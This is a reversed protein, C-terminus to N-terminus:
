IKFDRSYPLSNHHMIKFFLELNSQFKERGCSDKNQGKILKVHRSWKCERTSPTKLRVVLISNMCFNMCYILLRLTIVHCNSLGNHFWEVICMFVFPSFVQKMSYWRYLFQARWSPFISSFSLSSASLLMIDDRYWFQNFLLRCSISLNFM